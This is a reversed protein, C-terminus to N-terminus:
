GVYGARLEDVLRPRDARWGLAERAHAASAVQDALLADAYASGLRARSEDASEDIVPRGHAAAEALERVTSQEDSVAFVYDDDAAAELALVYLEALDDVHVLTWRQSGDGPLRVEEGSVFDAPIGGGHGYVIGPAVITTRVPARRVAAEIPIRWGSITEPSMPSSETLDDGAGFVWVGGTHLYPRDDEAFERSVIEVLSEDLAASSSDGTAATHVVGTSERVLRTLLDLDTADGVVATAGAARVAEAKAESRVLATVDHDRARLARLVASGIYGTAGTLLVAM